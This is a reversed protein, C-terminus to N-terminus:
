APPAPPSVGDADLHAADAGERLKQQWEAALYDPVVYHSAEQNRMGKLRHSIDVLYDERTLVM